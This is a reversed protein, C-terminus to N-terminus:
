SQNDLKLREVPVGGVLHSDIIEDIDEKDVYTYWTEQPYIVLVPGEACRALCGARNVRVKGVGHQNLAKLRTKAHTVLEAAGCDQCCQGGDSRTNECFFVHHKYYM